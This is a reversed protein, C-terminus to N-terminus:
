AVPLPARESASLAAREAAEHELRLHHATAVLWLVGLCAMLVALGAASSEVLVSIGAALAVVGILSTAVVYARNGRMLAAFGPVVASASAAFGLALVTLGTARVGELGPVPSDFAWLAYVAGAAVVLGTAILDRRPLRM